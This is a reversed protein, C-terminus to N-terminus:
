SIVMLKEKVLNDKMYEMKQNWYEKEKCREMLLNDKMFKEMRLYWKEKEMKKILYGNELINDEKKIHFRVKGV